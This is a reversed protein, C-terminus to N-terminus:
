REESELKRLLELQEPSLVDHVVLISGIWARYQKSRLESIHDALELVREGDIANEALLGHLEEAATQVEIALDTRVDLSTLSCKRIQDRQPRTLGLRDLTPCHEDSAGPALHHSPIVGPDFAPGTGPGAPSTPVRPPKGHERYMAINATTSAILAGALLWPWLSRVGMM